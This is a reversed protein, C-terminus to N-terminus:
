RVEAILPVLHLPRVNTEGGTIEACGAFRVKTGPAAKAHLPPLVREEIRRNIESSIDNFDRSNPFDSVNLLGTGDRVANGFIKGTKLVVDPNSDNERLALSVSDNKVAVVWGEGSVFYYCTSSLGVTRGYKARAAKADEAIESLLTAADVARDASKLLRESWLKEVFAAANFSADASHQRATELPVVHFLPCVWLLLAMGLAVAGCVLARRRRSSAPATVRFVPDDSAPNREAM